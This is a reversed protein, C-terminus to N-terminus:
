YTQSNYLELCRLTKERRKKARPNFINKVTENFDFSVATGYSSQGIGDVGTTGTPFRNIIHINKNKGPIKFVQSKSLPTNIYTMPTPLTRVSPKKIKKLQNLKLYNYSNFEPLIFEQEPKIEAGDLPKFEIINLDIDM